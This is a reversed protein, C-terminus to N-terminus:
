REKKKANGGISLRKGIENTEGKRSDKFSEKVM